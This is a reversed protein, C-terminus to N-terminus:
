EKAALGCSALVGLVHPMVHNPDPGILDWKAPMYTDDFSSFVLPHAEDIKKMADANLEVIHSFNYYQLALIGHVARMGRASLGPWTRTLVRDHEYEDSPMRDNIFLVPDHGQWEVVSAALMAPLDRGVIAIRM